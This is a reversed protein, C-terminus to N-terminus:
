QEVVPGIRDTESGSRAVVPFFQLVLFREGGESLKEGHWHLLLEDARRRQLSGPKGDVVGALVARPRPPTAGM